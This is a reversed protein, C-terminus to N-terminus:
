TCACLLMCRCRLSASANQFYVATRWRSPSAVGGVFSRFVLKVGDQRAQPSPVSSGGATTSHVAFDEMSM